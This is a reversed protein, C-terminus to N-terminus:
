RVTGFQVERDPEDGLPLFHNIAWESRAQHHRHDRLAAGPTHKSHRRRTRYVKETGYYELIEGIRDNRLMFGTGDSCDTPKIVHLKQSPSSESAIRYLEKM